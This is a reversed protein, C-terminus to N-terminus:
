KYGHKHAWWPSVTLVGIDGDQYVESNDSIQSKPVWVEDGYDLSVLLAKDTERLVEVDEIEVENKWEM